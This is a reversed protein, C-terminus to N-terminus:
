ELSTVKVYLGADVFTVTAADLYAVVSLLEKALVPPEEQTTPREVEEVGTPVAIFNM